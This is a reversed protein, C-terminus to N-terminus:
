ESWTGQSQNNMKKKETAYETEEAQGLCIFETLFM